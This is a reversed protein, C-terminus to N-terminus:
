RLVVHHSGRHGEYVAFVGAAWGAAARMRMCALGIAYVLWTDLIHLFVNSM